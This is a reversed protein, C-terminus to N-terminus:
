CRKGRRKKNFIKGVGCGLKKAGRKLNKGVNGAMYKAPNKKLAVMRRRYEAPDSAKLLATDVLDVGALGAVLGVGSGASAIKRLKNARRLAKAGRALRKVKRVNRRGRLDRPSLKM